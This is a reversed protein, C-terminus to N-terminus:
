EAARASAIAQLVQRVFRPEDDNLFQIRVDLRLIPPVEIATVFRAIRVWDKETTLLLDADARMADRRLEELEAATYPHHDAFSRFGVPTGMAAIQREFSEPSGIGCFGFIRRGTLDRVPREETRGSSPDFGRVCTPVHAARYIPLLANYRRLVAEIRAAEDSTVRDAHTLIAAHARALGGLPERLLGRPLVHGFGFPETANLLVIDLDRSVRRHQFGDDLLFVDIDPREELLLAGSVARNPDARVAVTPETGENLLRDLMTLEDGMEGAVSGYGRSLVAPHFGENRLREALFRVMPTKGTGGATLNGVSIVPRALRHVRLLSSQYLRNRARIVGSFATACGRLAVRAATAGAGRARGSMIARLKQEM